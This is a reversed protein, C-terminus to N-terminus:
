IKVIRKVTLKGKYMLKLFYIGPPSNVIEIQKIRTNIQGQSILIGSLNIIQYDVEAADLTTEITFRNYFPNPYISVKNELSEEEIGIFSGNLV